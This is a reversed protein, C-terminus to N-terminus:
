ESDRATKGYKQYLYDLADEFDLLHYDPVRKKIETWKFSCWQPSYNIDFESKVDMWDVDCEETVGSTYLRTILKRDDEASWRKGSKITDERFCLRYLWQSRCQYSNRTKVIDAVAQWSFGKFPVSGGEPTDTVRHVAEKLRDIEDDAWSGKNIDEMMAKYYKRCVSSNSRGMAQGIIVWDPGHISFLRKLEKVEEETYYGMYNTEDYIRFACRYVAFLTRQIGRGLRTYFNTKSLFNRWYKVDDEEMFSHYLLEMPDALNHEELYENMNSKLLNLEKMSWIGKRVHIGMAKLEEHRKESIFWTEHIQDAAWVASDIQEQTYCCKAFMKANPGVQAWRMNTKKEKREYHSREEDSLLMSSDSEPSMIADPHDSTRHGHSKAKHKQKMKHLVNSGEPGGETITSPKNHKTMGQPSLTEHSVNDDRFNEAKKRKANKHESSADKELATENNAVFNREREKEKKRKKKKHKRKEEGSSSSYNIVSSSSAICGSGNLTRNEQLKANHKQKIDHQGFGESIGKTNLSAKSLDFDQHGSTSIEFDSCEDENNITADRELDTRFSSAVDKEREKKKKKKKKKRKGEGTSSLSSSISPEEYDVINSSSYDETKSKHKHKKQHVGCDDSLQALSSDRKKKSEVNLFAVATSKRAKEEHFYNNVQKKKEKISSVGNHEHVRTGKLKKSLKSPNVTVDGVSM